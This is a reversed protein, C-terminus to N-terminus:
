GASKSGAIQKINARPRTREWEEIEERRWAVSNPGICIPLPFENESIWRYVTAPSLGYESTLDRMRLLKRPERRTELEHM